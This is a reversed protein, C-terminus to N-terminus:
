RAAPPHLVQGPRLLGPDPGIVARNAAWWRPWARAIHEPAAHPGLARAAVDWLTDGARVVVTGDTAARPAPTSTVLGVPEPRARRPPVAPAAPLWPGPRDVSPGAVPVASDPDASTGPRDVVPRAAAASTSAATTSAATTSAAASVAPVATMPAVVGVGLLTALLRAAIPPTIRTALCAGFRGATGPLVALSAALLAAATWALIGWVALAAAHGLAADLGDPRLVDDHLAQIQGRPGDAALAMLTTVALGVLALVGGFTRGSRLRRASRRGSSRRESIFARGATM